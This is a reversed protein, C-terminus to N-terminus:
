GLQTMDVQRLDAWGTSKFFVALDRSCPRFASKESMEVKTTRQDFVTLISRSPSITDQQQNSDVSLEV